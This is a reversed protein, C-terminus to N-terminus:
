VPSDFIYNPLMQPTYKPFTEKLFFHLLRIVLDNRKQTTPTSLNNAREESMLEGGRRIPEFERGGAGL